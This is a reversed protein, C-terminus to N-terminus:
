GRRLMALARRHESKFRKKVSRKVAASSRKFYHPRISYVCDIIKKDSRGPKACRRMINTGPGHQVAVSWVVDRLAHSRRSLNIGRRKMKRSLLIYHTDAIYGHQAAAFGKQKALQRWARKFRKAGKRAAAHGGAAQLKNYYGRHNARLWRMFEKFTGTYTAIQYSGYSPGGTSDYGIAGPKGNSEYRESLKGLKHTKALAPHKQVPKNQKAPPKPQAEHKDPTALFAIKNSTMGKIIQQSAPATRAEKASLLEAATFAADLAYDAADTFYKADDKQIATATNIIHMSALEAFKEDTKQLYVIGLLLGAAIIRIM